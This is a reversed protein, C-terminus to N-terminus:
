VSIILRRRSASLHVSSSRAQAAVMRTLSSLIPAATSRLVRRTRRSNAEWWGEFVDGEGRGTRQRRLGRRTSNGARRCVVPYPSIARQAAFLATRLGEPMVCVPGGRGVDSLRCGALKSAFYEPWLRWVFPLWQM